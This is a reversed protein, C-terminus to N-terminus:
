IAEMLIISINEQQYNGTLPQLTQVEQGLANYVVVSVESEELLTFSLQTTETFPNLTSQLVVDLLTPTPSSPTNTTPRNNNKLVNAKYQGNTCYSALNISSQPIAGGCPTPIGSILNIGEGIFVGDEIIIENAILNVTVGSAATLNGTVTITNFAQIAQNSTSQGILFIM